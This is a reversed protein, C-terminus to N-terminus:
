RQGVGSHINPEVAKAQLSRPRERLGDFQDVGFAAGADVDRNRLIALHDVAM